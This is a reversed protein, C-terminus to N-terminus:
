KSCNKRLMKTPRTLNFLKSMHSKLKKMDSYPSVSYIAYVHISYMYDLVTPCIICYSSLAQFCKDINLQTNHTKCEPLLLKVVRTERFLAWWRSKAWNGTYPQSPTM